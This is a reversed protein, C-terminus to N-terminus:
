DVKIDDHYKAVANVLSNIYVTHSIVIQNPHYAGIYLTGNKISYSLNLEEDFKMELKLDQEYLWSTNGFIVINPDYIILQFLNIPRWFEYYEKLNKWSTHSQGPLKGTNIIAVEKLTNAISPDDYIWNQEEYYKNNLISNSAYAITKLTMSAKINEYMDNSKNYVDSLGWGGGSPNGNDDFDDYAEKLVWLIRCKSNAYKECDGVGDFIPAMESKENYPFFRKIYTEILEQDNKLKLLEM